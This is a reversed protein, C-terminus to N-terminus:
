DAGSEESYDDYLPLSGFRGHERSMHGLGRGAYSSDAFSQHFAQGGVGLGRVTRDRKGGASPSLLKKTKKGKSGKAPASEQLRKAFFRLWKATEAKEAELGRTKATVGGSSDRKLRKIEEDLRKTKERLLKIKRKWEEGTTLPANEPKKEKPKKRKPKPTNALANRTDSSPEAGVGHSKRRHKPLNKELVEAGCVPCRTWPRADRLPPTTRPSRQVSASVRPAKKGKPKKPPPAAKTAPKKTPPMPRTKLAPLSEISVVYGNEDVTIRAPM